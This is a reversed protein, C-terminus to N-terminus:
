RTSCNEKMPKCYSREQPGSTLLAQEKQAEDIKAQQYKRRGAERLEELRDPRTRNHRAQHGESIFMAMCLSALALTGWVWSPVNVLIEGLLLVKDAIYFFAWLVVASLVIAGALGLLQTM